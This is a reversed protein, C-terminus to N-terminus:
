KALHQGVEILVWLVVSVLAVGLLLRLFVFLIMLCGLLQVRELESM